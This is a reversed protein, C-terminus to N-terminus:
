KKNKQDPAGKELGVGNPSNLTEATANKHTTLSRTIRTQLGRRQKQRRTWRRRSPRSQNIPQNIRHLPRISPHRQQSRHRRHGGTSHHSCTRASQAGSSVDVKLPAKPRQAKDPRSCPTHESVSPLGPSYLGYRGLPESAIYATRALLNHPEM